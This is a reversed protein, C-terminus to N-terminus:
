EPAVTARHGPLPERTRIEGAALVAEAERRQRRRREMWWGNQRGNYGLLSGRSRELAENWGSKEAVHQLLIYSNIRREEGPLTCYIRQFRDVGGGSPARWPEPMPVRPKRRVHVLYPVERITHWPVLVVDRDGPDFAVGFAAAVADVQDPDLPYCRNLGLDDEPTSGLATRLAEVDPVASRAELVPRDTVPDLAQRVFRHRM